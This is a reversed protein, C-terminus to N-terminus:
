WLVQPVSYWSGHLKLECVGHSLNFIACARPILTDSTDRVAQLTSNWGGMPRVWLQRKGNKKMKKLLFNFFTLQSYLRKFPQFEVKCAAHYMLRTRMIHNKYIHVCCFFAACGVGTIIDCTASLLGPLPLPTTIVHFGRHEPTVIQTSPRLRTRWFLTYAHYM